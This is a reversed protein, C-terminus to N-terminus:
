KGARRSRLFREPVPVVRSQDWPREWGGMKLAADVLYATFGWLFLEGFQWAPGLLGGPHRSTLRNAPDALQEITWRQVSAVEHESKAWIPENGSWFGVVPAVDMSNVPIRIASFEGLVTVAEPALGIEEFTERLATATLSADTPDKRGGPLSIQGAHSRLKAHRETFVIDPQGTTSFLMMVASNATGQPIRRQEIPPRMKPDAVARM